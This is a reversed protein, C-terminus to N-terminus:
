LFSNVAISVTYGPFVAIRVSFLAGTSNIYVTPYVVLPLTSCFSISALSSPKICLMFTYSPPSPSTFDLRVALAFHPGHPLTENTFFSFLARGAPEKDGISQLYKKRRLPAGFANSRSVDRKNM